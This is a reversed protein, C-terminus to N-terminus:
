CSPLATYSVFGGECVGDYTAGAIETLVQYASMGLPYDINVILAQSKQLLEIGPLRLRSDIMEPQLQQLPIVQVEIDFSHESLVRVIGVNAEEDLRANKVSIDHGELKKLAYYLFNERNSPM